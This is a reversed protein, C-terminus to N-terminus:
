QPPNLFYRYADPHHSIIWVGIGFLLPTTFSVVFQGYQVCIFLTFMLPRDARSFRNGCYNVMGEAIERHVKRWLVWAISWCLAAVLIGFIFFPFLSPM